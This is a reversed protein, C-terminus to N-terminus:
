SNYYGHISTTCRAMLKPKPAPANKEAAQEKLLKETLEYIYIYIYTCANM